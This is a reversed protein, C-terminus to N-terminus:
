EDDQKNRQNNQNNQNGQGQPLCAKLAQRNQAQQVCNIRNQIKELRDNMRELMKQKHEQFQQQNQGQGGQPGGQQGNQQQAFVPASLIVAFIFFSIKKM